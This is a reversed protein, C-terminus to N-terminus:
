VGNIALLLLLELELSVHTLFPLLCNQRSRAWATLIISYIGVGVPMVATTWSLHYLVELLPIVVLPWRRGIKDLERLLVYRLLFEWGLLWSLEWSILMGINAGRVRPLNSDIGPFLFISRVIVGQLLFAVILLRYDSRRWPKITFFSWDINRITIGLPILLWAVLKYLDAGYITPGSLYSDLFLVLAAYVVVFAAYIKSRM